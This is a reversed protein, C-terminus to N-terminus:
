DDNVRRESSEVTQKTDDDDNMTEYKEREIHTHTHKVNKRSKPHDDRKGIDACLQYHVNFWDKRVCVCVCM